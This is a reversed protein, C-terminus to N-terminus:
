QKDTATSPEFLFSKFHGEAHEGGGVILGVRISRDWPPLYSGNQTDGISIWKTDDNSAAFRLSHGDSATIRLKLNSSATIQTERLIQEKGKDLRWLKLNGDSFALGIANDQDGIAAIGASANTRMSSVDLEVTAVYDGTLSPCALVAATGGGPSLILHAKSMRDLRIGPEHDQPWQWNPSLMAGSFNDEMVLQRRQRSGLPSIANTSPGRGDNIIPWGGQIFNVEDLMAERGTYISDRASYAHYLLFYRQSATEVISGHGPCKWSDNGTLIPNASNKEWPGLLSHSRAVGLAYNCGSGCCGNGSYFLYFWDGRRVIFPGEVVAGEWAADNRLIEKPAGVLKCGDDALAQAWLISPLRRSNGDEKWVLFRRGSEDTVPVPDISGADQAVLPGHDTYPGAPKDATAVAVALPGGKKRGVYYVFYRGQYESIEPAWFNGVAWAPRHPFVSGVIEWNVLDKSHLLPFQPGWESSTSTAWFDDGVRIVSPDPHDGPIVPNQYTEDALTTSALSLACFAAIL